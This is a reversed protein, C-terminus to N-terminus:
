GDFTNTPTLTGTNVAGYRGDTWRAVGEYSNTALADRQSRDFLRCPAGANRQTVTSTPLGNM